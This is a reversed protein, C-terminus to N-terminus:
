STIPRSARVAVITRAISKAWREEGFARLIEILETESLANVLMQYGSSSVKKVPPRGDIVIAVGEPKRVASCLRIQTKEALAVILKRHLDVANKHKAWWKEPALLMGWSGRHRKRDGLRKQIDKELGDRDHRMRWVYECLEVTAYWADNATEKVEIAVPSGHHDVGILDVERKSSRQSGLPLANGIVKVMSIIRAEKDLLTTWGLSLLEQEIKREGAIKNKSEPARGRRDGVQFRYDKGRATRSPPRRGQVLRLVTAVDGPNERAEQWDDNSPILPM